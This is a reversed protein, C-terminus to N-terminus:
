SEFAQGVIAYRRCSTPYVQVDVPIPSSPAALGQSLRESLLASLAVGISVRSREQSAFHGVFVVALPVLLGPARALVQLARVIWLLLSLTM